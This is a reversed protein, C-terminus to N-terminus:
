ILWWTSCLLQASVTRGQRWNGRGKESDVKEELNNKQSLDLSLITPIIM